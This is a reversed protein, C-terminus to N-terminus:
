LNEQAEQASLSITRDQADIVGDLNFDKSQYVNQSEQAAGIISRDTSDLLGDQSADGQRLGFIGAGTTGAGVNGVKVQNSGLINANTTFDINSSSGLTFAIPTNTSIGLHNRHRITVKYSGAVTIGPLSIGGTTSVITANASDIVTGDSKLIAAKRTIIANTTNDRIEVLVWDCIDARRNTTPLTETGNYSYPAASYPQATPILNSILLDTRMNDNVSDFAGSLNVKINIATGSTNTSSSSSSTVPPLGNTYITGAQLIPTIAAGTYDKGTMTVTQPYSAQVGVTPVTMRFEFYGRARTKDLTDIAKFGILGPERNFGNGGIGCDAATIPTNSASNAAGFGFTNVDANPINNIVNVVRQTFDPLKFACESINIYRNALIAFKNWGSNAGDLKYNPDTNTCSTSAVPNTESNSTNTFANLSDQDTWVTYGLKSTANDLRRCQALYLNKNYLSYSKLKSYQDLKNFDAALPAICGDQTLLTNSADTSDSGASLNGSFAVNTKILTNFTSASNTGLNYSCSNLNLYRKKGADLIGKSSLTATGNAGADAGDYFTSAPSIGTNLMTSFMDDKEQATKSDCTGESNSPKKCTNFSGPVYQFGIPLATKISVDTLARDTRNDYPIRVKVVTGAAANTINPESSDNQLYVIGAQASNTNGGACYTTAVPCNIATCSSAGTGSTTDIPCATYSGSNAPCYNNTPCPTIIGSAPCYAGAPCPYCKSVDQSNYYTGNGCISLSNNVEPVFTDVADATVQNFGTGTGRVRAESGFVGFNYPAIIKYEILGKGRSTDLLDVKMLLKHESNRYSQCFGTDTYSSNNDARLNCSIVDYYNGPQGDTQYQLYRSGYLDVKDKFADNPRGYCRNGSDNFNGDNNAQLDCSAASLGGSYEDSRIQLYRGNLTDAIWIGGNVIGDRGACRGLDNFSSDNDAFLNCAFITNAQNGNWDDEIQIYRKKGIEFYGDSEPDVNHLGSSPNVGGNFMLEAAQDREASTMGSCIAGTFNQYGEPTMCNNWSGAKYTFGAPLSDKIQARSITQFGANDYVLRVTLEQGQQVALSEGTCSDGGTCFTKNIAFKDPGGNQSSGLIQAAHATKNNLNADFKTLTLISLSVVISAVIVFLILFTNLKQAPKLDAIANLIKTKLNNIKNYFM